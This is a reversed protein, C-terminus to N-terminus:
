NFTRHLHVQAERPLDLPEYQLLKGTTVLFHQQKTLGAFVAVQKFSNFIFLVCAYLVRHVRQYIQLHFVMVRFTFFCQKLPHVIFFIYEVQPFALGGFSNLYEQIVILLFHLLPLRLVHKLMVKHGLAFLITVFFNRALVVTQRTPFPEAGEKNVKYTTFQTLSGV